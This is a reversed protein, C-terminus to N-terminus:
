GGLEGLPATEGTKEHLLAALGSGPGFRPGGVPEEGALARLAPALQALVDSATTGARGVARAAREGANGHLYVALCAAEFPALRQALLGGLAGALVDGTGATALAAEAVPSIRARQDPAAVATNAGKLVVTGGWEAAQAQALPLREAQIAAVDTGVLRAMEGAHPTVVFPARVHPQWDSGALANLADADIVVGRLGALADDRLLQRVFADSAPARGLGCGILLADYRPAAEQVLSLAAADVTGPASGEPLPLYTVEPMAAVLGSILSAPTALTVLGAGVRYAAASALLAAGPYSAAGAVVLLKGFTGKHAHAPRSPLLAAVARQDLLEVPLQAAFESPIGIDVPEVRGALAAGPQTYLGVKPYQLAVTEDAAVTLPDVRGSDADLGSPLDVAILKPQRTLERAAGLARLMEALDGEIPRARGTGLLADIALAAEAIARRLADLGGAEDMTRCPVGAAVTRQWQADDRASVAFCQLSAGWEALQRAAVLGDGGNNGPGVLVVIPRDQVDGLQMWAEQAVALGANEMLTELSVGAAVAREELARMEARSVLKM